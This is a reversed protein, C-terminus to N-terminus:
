IAKTENNKKIEINGIIENDLKKEKNKTNKRERKKNLIIEDAEKIKKLNIEKDKELM